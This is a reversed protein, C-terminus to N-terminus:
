WPNKVQYKTALKGVVGGIGYAISALWAYIVFSM